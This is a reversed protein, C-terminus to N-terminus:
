AEEMWHESKSCDWSEHPDEMTRCDKDPTTSNRGCVTCVFMTKGSESTKRLRVWRGNLKRQRILQFDAVTAAHGCQVCRCNGDDDYHIDTGQKSDDIGNDHLRMTCRVDIDFPGDDRCMPCRFGALCNSNM